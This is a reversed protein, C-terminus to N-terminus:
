SGRGFLRKFKTWAEDVDIGNEVTNHQLPNHGKYSEEGANVGVEDAPKEKWEAVDKADVSGIPVIDRGCFRCIVAQSKITEACFPCNRENSKRHLSKSSNPASKTAKMGHDIVLLVVGVAAIIISLILFNQQQSLLGINHVRDSGSTAVSTDMSLTAYIGIAGICLAATGYNKM